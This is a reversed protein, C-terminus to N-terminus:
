FISKSAENSFGSEHGSRNYATIAFFYTQGLALNTVQYTTVNGVDIPPGYAGSALGVYVRYGALNGEKNPNWTLTATGPGLPPPPPPQPPPTGSSAPQSFTATVESHQTLKRPYNAPDTGSQSTTSLKGVSAFPTPNVSASARESRLSPTSTPATVNGTAMTAQATNRSGINASATTRATPGIKPIVGNMTPSVTQPTYVSAVAATSAPIPANTLGVLPRRILRGPLNVPTQSTMAPPPLLPVSSVSPRQILTHSPSSPVSPSTQLPSPLAIVALAPRRILTRPSGVANFSTTLQPSSSTSAAAVDSILTVLGIQWGVAGGIVWYLALASVLLIRKLM